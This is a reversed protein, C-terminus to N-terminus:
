RAPAPYLDPTLTIKKGAVVFINEAYRLGQARLEITYNGPRLWMTKLKGATGAFSGNVFVQADKVKTQLKVQGANPAVAYPGYAYPGYWGGYGGFPVFAPGVFVGVRGWAVTQCSLIVAFAAGLLMLKKM